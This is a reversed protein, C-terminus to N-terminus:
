LVPSTKKHIVIGVRSYYLTEKVIGQLGKVDHEAILIVDYYDM